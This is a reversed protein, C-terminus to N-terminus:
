LFLFLVELGQLSQLPIAYQYLLNDYYGMIVSCEVFM